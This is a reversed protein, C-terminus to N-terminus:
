NKTITSTVDCVPPCPNNIAASTNYITNTVADKGTADVGVVIAIKQGSNDKAMYIRFGTLLSNERFINNMADLQTKDLTFGKIVQNNVTAGSLYNKVYTNADTASVPNVGILTGGTLPANSFAFLVFILVASLIGGFFGSVVYLYKKTKM